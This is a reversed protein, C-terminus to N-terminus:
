GVPADLSGPFAVDESGALSAVGETPPLPFRVPDSDPRVAPQASGELQM